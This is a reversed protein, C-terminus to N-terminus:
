KNKKRYFTSRSNGTEECWRKEAEKITSCEKLYKKMLEMEEDVEELMPIILNKWNNEDYKKFKEAKKILRLDFNQTFESSNEKIFDVIKRDKCIAYMLKIKDFYSIKLEFLLCRSLVVKAYDNNPIRNTIIIIKSNFLFKSPINLKGRTSNWTIVRKKTPSWLASLIISIAYSNSILGAVDDFVLVENDKHNYLFEFLAKPTSIGSHYCYKTKEKELVKLTTTTKGTGQEGLFIFSNHFGKVVSKIYEIPIKFIENIIEEKNKEKTLNKVSEQFGKEAKAEEKELVEKEQIKNKDITPINYLTIIKDKLIQENEYVSIERDIHQSIDFTDYDDKLLKKAFNELKLVEKQKLM